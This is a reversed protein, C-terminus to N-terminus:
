KERNFRGPDDPLGITLVDRSISIPAVVPGVAAGIGGYELRINEESPFSYDGAMRRGDFVTYFTGDKFFVMQESGDVETWTGVIQSEISSSSFYIAIYIGAAALVVVAFIIIGWKQLFTETKPQDSM